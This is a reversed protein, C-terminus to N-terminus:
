RQGGSLYPIEKGDEAYLFFYSSASEFDYYVKSIRKMM